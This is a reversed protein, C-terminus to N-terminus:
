NEDIVREVRKHKDVLVELVSVSTLRERIVKTLRLYSAELDKFEALYYYQQIGDLIDAMSEDERGSVQAFLLLKEVFDDWQNNPRSLLDQYFDSLAYSGKESLKLFIIDDPEVTIDLLTKFAEFEYKEVEKPEIEEM